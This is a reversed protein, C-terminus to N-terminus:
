AWRWGLFFVKILKTIFFWITFIFLLGVVFIDMIDNRYIPTTTMIQDKICNVDVIGYIGEKKLYHSNVFYDTYYNVERDYTKFVRITDKDLVIACNGNEYKPVYIKDEM